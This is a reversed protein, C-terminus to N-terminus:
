PSFLTQRRPPDLTKHDLYSMGKSEARSSRMTLCVGALHCACISVSAIYISHVAVKCTSIRRPSHSFLREVFTLRPRLDLRNSSRQSESMNVSRSLGSSLKDSRVCASIYTVRPGPSAGKASKPQSNQLALICPNCSCKSRFYVTTPSSM